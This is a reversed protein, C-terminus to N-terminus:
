DILRVIIEDSFDISVTGSKLEFDLVHGGATFTDNLYHFHYGPFNLNDFKEPIWFGVITGTSNELNFTNQQAVVDYISGYPPTQKPVSRTKLFNFEGSIRIAAPKDNALLTELLNNKLPDDETDTNISFSSDATFFKTIAFPILYNDPPVEVPGNLDVRYTIGNLYVMEGDVGNFTGLGFDGFSKYETQTLNGDFVGNELDVKTSYQFIADPFEIPRTIEKVEKTCSTFLLVTLLVFCYNKM